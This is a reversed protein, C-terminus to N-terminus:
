EDSLSLVCHGAFESLGVVPLNIEGDEDDAIVDLEPDLEKLEEILKGVKM